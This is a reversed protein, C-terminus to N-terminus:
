WQHPLTTMKMQISMSKTEPILKCESSLHVLFEIQSPSLALCQTTEVLFCVVVTDSHDWITTWHQINHFFTFNVYMAVHLQKLQRIYNGSTARNDLYITDQWNDVSTVGVGFNRVTWRVTIREGIIFVCLSLATSDFHYEEIVVM